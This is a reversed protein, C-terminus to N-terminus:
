SQLLWSCLDWAVDMKNQLPWHEERGTASAVAMANTPAAFGSGEQAVNNAALVDVGKSKLKMRAYEMLAADDPATEAAFGLIRQRDRRDAALTALIDPNPTFKISFGKPSSSKKFKAQGYPEPSFDAVAATFMGMTVSPWLEQARALMEDATNVQYLNLGPLPPLMDYDIGPGAVAHVQAGRLWAALALSSGMAGTSPNSWYRVCDWPERTPGLTVLVVEKTMDKPALLRLSQALLCPMSALRGQGETGCALRGCDPEIVVVGREKLTAVNAQTAANHWMWTNMAPAVAVPGTFALIQTSLMDNALGHAVRALLNASAPAVLLADCTQGPELHAFTDEGTFMEPYVPEAGLSTFLLPKIFYQAGQTLTASVQIGLVAFHRLIEASKYCAISGSVGLHVRKGQLRSLGRLLRVADIM